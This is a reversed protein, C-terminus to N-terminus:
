PRAGCSSPTDDLEAILRMTCRAARAPGDFLALIGDGTHMIIRGRIENVPGQALQDHWDLM